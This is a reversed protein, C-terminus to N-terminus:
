AFSPPGRLAFAPAAVSSPLVVGREERRGLLTLGLAFPVVAAFLVAIALTLLSLGAAVVLRRVAVTEELAAVSEQLDDTISIIPFLVALVCIATLAVLAVRRRDPENAAFVAVRVLAALAIALWVSNLLLEM